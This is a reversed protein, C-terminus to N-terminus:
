EPLPAFIVDVINDAHLASIVDIIKQLPMDPGLVLEVAFLEGGQEGIVAYQRIKDAINKLGAREDKGVNIEASEVFYHIKSMNSDRSLELKIRKQEANVHKPMWCQLMNEKIVVEDDNSLGQGAIKAFFGIKYIGVEACARLVPEIASYPARFDARICIGRESHSMGGYRVRERSIDAEEKLRLVLNKYDNYLHRRIQLEWHDRRTCAGGGVSTWKEKDPLRDWEPCDQSKHLVNVVIRSGDGSYNSRMEETRDSVPVVFFELPKTRKDHYIVDQKKPM